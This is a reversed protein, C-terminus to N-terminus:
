AKKSFFSLMGKQQVPAVITKKAKSSQLLTEKNAKKEKDNTIVNADKNNNINEKSINNSDDYDHIDSKIRKSQVNSIDTDLEDDTFQEWVMETVLYGISLIYM